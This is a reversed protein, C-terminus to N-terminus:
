FRDFIMQVSTRKFELYGNLCEDTLSLDSDLAEILEAESKPLRLAEDSYNIPYSTAQILRKLITISNIVGTNRRLNQICLRMFYFGFLPFLHVLTHCLNDVAM